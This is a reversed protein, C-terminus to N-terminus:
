HLYNINECLIEQMGLQLLTVLICLRRQFRLARRRLTSPFGCWIWLFAACTFSVKIWNIIHSIKSKNQQCRLLKSKEIFYAKHRIFPLRFQLMLLDYWFRTIMSLLSYGPKVHFQQRKWRCFITILIDCDIHAGVPEVVSEVHKVDRRRRRTLLSIYNYLM